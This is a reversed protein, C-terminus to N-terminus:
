CSTVGKKWLRIYALCFVGTQANKCLCGYAQGVEAQYVKRWIFNNAFTYECAAYDDDKLKEDIWDKDALSIKHFVLEEKEM